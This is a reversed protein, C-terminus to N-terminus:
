AKLFPPSAPLNQSAYLLSGKRSIHFKPYDQNIKQCVIRTWITNQLFRGRAEDVSRYYMRGHPLGEGYVMGYPQSVDMPNPNGVIEGSGLGWMPDGVHHDAFHKFSQPDAMGWNDVKGSNPDSMTATGLHDTGHVVSSLRKGQGRGFNTHLSNIASFLQSNYMIVPSPAHNGRPTSGSGTAPLVPRGRALSRILRSRVIYESRWSALATLRCFSRRDSRFIEKGDSPKMSKDATNKLAVPGPFFRAFATRWADPTTVLGHFRRSVSAM